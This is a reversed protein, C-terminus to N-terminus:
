KLTDGGSLASISPATQSRASETGIAVILPTTPPARIPTCRNLSILRNDPPALTTDCNAVRAVAIYTLVFRVHSMEVATRVRTRM